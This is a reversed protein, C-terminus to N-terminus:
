FIGLRKEYILNIIFNYHFSGFELGAYFGIYRSTFSSYDDSSDNRCFDICQHGDNGNKKTSKEFYEHGNREEGM